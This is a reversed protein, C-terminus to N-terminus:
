STDGAQNATLTCTGTALITATASNAGNAGNTGGTTCISPSSSAFVVPSTSGGGTATLTMINNPAAQYSIPSVPTFGTITELPSDQAACQMANFFVAAAHIEFGPSDTVRM